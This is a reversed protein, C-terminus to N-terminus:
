ILNNAQKVQLQIYLLKIKVHDEKAVLKESFGVCQCAEVKATGPTM